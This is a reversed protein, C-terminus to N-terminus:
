AGIPASISVVAKVAAIVIAQPRRQHSPQVRRTGALVIVCGPGTKIATARHPSAPARFRL